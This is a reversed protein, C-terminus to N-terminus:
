VKHAAERLADSVITDVDRVAQELRDNVVVADFAPAQALEMAFREMRKRLTEPEETRRERLRRELVELSPPRIFILLSERPYKRKISLAGKVDIDFVMSSGARLARDVETKLSGYYDGYIEEWEVLAQDEIRRKFDDPTLFFYDKGDIEGPRMPRTTASVSFVLEPHLKLIERAITTKGSGSPASIVILRPM